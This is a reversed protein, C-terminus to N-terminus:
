SSFLSCTLTYYYMYSLVIANVPKKVNTGYKYRQVRLVGFEIWIIILQTMLYIANLDTENIKRM